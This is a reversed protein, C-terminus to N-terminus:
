RSTVISKLKYTELNFNFKLTGSKYLKWSANKEPKYNVDKRFSIEIEKRKQAIQLNKIPYEFSECSQCPLSINIEGISALKGDKIYYAKIEPYYEYDTVWLVVYSNNKLSKFSYIMSSYPSFEVTDIRSNKGNKANNSYYMILKTLNDDSNFYLYDKKSICIVKKLKVVISKQMEFKTNIQASSAFYFLFM